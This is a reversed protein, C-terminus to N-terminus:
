AGERLLGTPVEAIVDTAVVSDATGVRDAARRGARAHAYVAACAAARPELGRALLAAIVGTLVDGTGATALGPSALGNVAPRGDPGVVITDDGKLVVIAGSREAAARAGALRAAAIAGSDIGLLRGLEGAHPTLVTAADRDALSELRGAIANLGDADIVLPAEIGGALEGVLEAAGDHRGLGPGVVVAAAREAAATIPTAAAPDLAGGRSPCGITMVETLKVEFIQELEAPVAVTAYGAGARCAAEASMCVAGTLGRSGGAILVQGSSFKTSDAGRPPALDLVGTGILGGPAEAPAGDGIGIPAVRLEGTHRKGPALWHGIKPAHFSVTLDANVAAGEVEGTSADVGSAIDAAVVPARGHNIAEVAAAAPDRPAGSFGTGFIADVVVGSDDLAEPRTGPEHVTAAGRLRELNAAADASLESAPWLLLVEVELGTAALHRAAVLGDGGNNGKGCVVRARGTAAIEVAADAVARGAAEMLELSPVGREEIAWADTARMSAADHLPQLWSEM